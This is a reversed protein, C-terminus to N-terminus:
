NNWISVRAGGGGLRRRSMVVRDWPHCIGRWREEIHSSMWGRHARGLELSNETAEGSGLKEGSGWKSRGDAFGVECWSWVGAEHAGGGGGGAGGGHGEGDGFGVGHPAGLEGRLLEPYEAFGASFGRVGALVIFVVRALTHIRTGPTLRRQIGRVLLKLAPTPPRRKKIRDRARQHPLLIRHKPHLPCLNQTRRTAPM